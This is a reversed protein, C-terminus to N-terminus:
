PIDNFHYAISGTSLSGCMVPPHGLRGLMKIARQKKDTLKVASGLIYLSTFSCTSPCSPLLSACGNLESVLESMDKFGCCGLRIMYALNNPESAGTASSYLVKAKPLNLQLKLIAKGTQTSKGACFFGDNSPPIGGFMDFLMSGMYQRRQNSM